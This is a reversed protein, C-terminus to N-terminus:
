KARERQKKNWADRYREMEAYCPQASTCARRTRWQVPDECLEMISYGESASIRMEFYACGRQESPVPFGFGRYVKDKVFLGSAVHYRYLSTFPIPGPGYGDNSVVDVYGDGDVDYVAVVAFQSPPKLRTDLELTQRLKGDPAYILLEYGERGLVKLRPVFREVFSFEGVDAHILARQRQEGAPPDDARL